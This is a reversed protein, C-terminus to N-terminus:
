LNNEFGTKLILSSVYKRFLIFGVRRGQAREERQGMEKERQGFGM